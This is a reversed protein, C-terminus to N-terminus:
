AAERQLEQATVELIANAVQEPADYMPVHGAGDLVLWEADPVVQRWRASYAPMPLIRDRSGWVFRIRCPPQAFPAPVTQTAMAKVVHDYIGCRWAAEIFHQADERTMHAARAVADRLVVSRVLESRVLTGALPGGITLLARMVRFKQMLRRHERSGLEWGGGPALAVVSRARGRRALEIALWGGLSNGVMHAQALGLADLQGEVLMVAEEVTHRFGLPAPDAGLHGAIGLAHVLHKENLTQLIPKWVHPSSAFPHLL